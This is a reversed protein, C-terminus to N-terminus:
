KLFLVLVGGLLLSLVLGIFLIKANINILSSKLSTTPFNIVEEEKSKNTNQLVQRNYFLFDEKEKNDELLFINPKGPTPITWDWRGNEDRAFSRNEKTKGEYKIYFIEKGNEDLLSIEEGKNRISFNFEKKSLVKYEKPAIVGSLKIKKSGVKLAVKELNIFDDSPNFIEIFEEEDKGELNPLFENIILYIPKEKIEQNGKNVDENLVEKKNLEVEKIENEKLYQPNNETQKKDEKTRSENLNLGQVEPEPYIGPTGKEIRGEKINGNENILSFGNGNGGMSSNYYFEALVNKNEDLIKITGEKNNLSIATEFIKISPDLNYESKFINKDKVFLFIEGKRIITNEGKLIRYNKGDFIRWGRKGTKIEIDSDLNIVEIWEKNKDSGKPNYMVETISIKALSVLPFIFVCYIIFLRKM